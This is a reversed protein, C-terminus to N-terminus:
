CVSSFTVNVFLIRFNSKNTIYRAGLSDAATSSRKGIM